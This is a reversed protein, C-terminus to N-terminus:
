YSVLHVVFDIATHKLLASLGLAGPASYLPWGIGHGWEKHTCIILIMDRTSSM